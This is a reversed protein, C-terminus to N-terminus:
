RTLNEFQELVAPEEAKTIHEANHLVVIDSVFQSFKEKNEEFAGYDDNDSILLTSKPLVQKVKEIDIPTNIWPGAIAKSEEDELNELNFWGAVFLAGGIPQDITELYRLVTQCGISHGILYTDSNPQGVVEKLKNVWAQIKPTETEPMLPVDVEYGRGVLEKKLWPLWNREPTGEWGHIIIVKKM